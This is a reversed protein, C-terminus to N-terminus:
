DHDLKIVPHRRRNTSSFGGRNRGTPPLTTTVEIQPRGFKEFVMQAIRDGQKVYQRENSTNHRCVIVDGRYDHDIIGGVVNLGKSALSSRSALRTYMDKPPLIALGLPIKVTSNPDIYYTSPSTVDYGVSGEAARNPLTALDNLKRVKVTETLPHLHSTPIVESDVYQAYTSDHM